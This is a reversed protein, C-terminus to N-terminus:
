FYCDSIVIQRAIIYAKTRYIKDINGLIFDCPSVAKQIAQEDFHMGM